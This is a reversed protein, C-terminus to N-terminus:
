LKHTVCKLTSDQSVLSEYILLFTYCPSLEIPKPMCDFIINIGHINLRINRTNEGNKEEGDGQRDWQFDTSCCM